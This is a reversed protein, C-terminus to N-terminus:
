YILAIIAIALITIILPPHAPSGNCLDSDCCYADGAYNREAFTLSGGAVEKCDPQCGRVVGRLPTATRMMLCKSGAPCEAQTQREDTYCKLTVVVVLLACLVLLQRSM